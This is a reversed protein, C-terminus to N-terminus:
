KPNTPASSSLLNKIGEVIVVRPAFYGKAANTMFDGCYFIAIFIGLLSAIRLAVGCGFVDDENRCDNHKSRQFIKPAISRYLFIFFGIIVLCILFNILNSIFYWTAYEKVFLPAETMTFNKAGEIWTGLEKLGDITLNQLEKKFDM